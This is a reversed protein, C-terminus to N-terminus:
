IDRKIFMKNLYPSSPRGIEGAKTIPIAPVYISKENGLERNSLNGM